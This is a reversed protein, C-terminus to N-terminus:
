RNRGTQLSGKGPSLPRWDRAAAASAARGGEGACTRGSDGTSGAAPIGVTSAPPGSGSPETM